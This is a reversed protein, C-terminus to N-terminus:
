WELTDFLEIIEVCNLDKAVSLLKELEKIYNKEEKDIKIKSYYIICKLFIQQYVRKNKIAIEEGLGAYKLALTMKNDLLLLTCFNCIFNLINESEKFFLEYKKIYGSIMHMMDLIEEVSFCFLANNFLRFDYILWSNLGLIYDKIPAVLKKIEKLDVGTKFKRHAEILISFQTYRIQGTQVYKNHLAKKLHNYESDSYNAYNEIHELYIYEDSNNNKQYILFLLENLDINLRNLLKMLISVSPSHKNSEILSLYVRSIIGKCVHEQNYSQSVRIEKLLTGLEIDEEM